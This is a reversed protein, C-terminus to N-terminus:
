VILIQKQTIWKMGWIKLCEWVLESLPQGGNDKVPSMLEKDLNPLAISQGNYNYMRVNAGEEVHSGRSGQGQDEIPFADVDLGTIARYERVANTGKYVPNM